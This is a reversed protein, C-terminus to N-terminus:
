EAAGLAILERAVIEDTIQDGNMYDTLVSVGVPVVVVPALVLSVVQVSITHSVRRETNLIQELMQLAVIRPQPNVEEARRRLRQRERFSGKRDDSPRALEITKRQHRGNRRGQRITRFRLFPWTGSERERRGHREDRQCAYRHPLLPTTISTRPSLLVKAPKCATCLTENRTLSPSLRASSPGFPLPFVVVNFHRAPSDLGVAPWIRIWPFSM